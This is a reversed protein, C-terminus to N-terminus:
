SMFSLRIEVGDEKHEYFTFMNYYCFNLPTYVIKKFFYGLNIVLLFNPFFFFRTFIGDFM